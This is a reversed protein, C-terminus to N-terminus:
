NCLRNVARKYAKRRTVSWGGDQSAPAIEPGAAYRALSTTILRISVARPFAVINWKTRYDSVHRMSRAVM